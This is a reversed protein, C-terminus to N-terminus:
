RGYEVEITSDNYAVRGGGLRMAAGIDMRAEYMVLGQAYEGPQLVCTPLFRPHDYTTITTSGNGYHITFNQPYVRVPLSGTNAVTIEAAYIDDGTALAALGLLVKQEDSLGAVFSQLEDTADRGSVRLRAVPAVNASEVDFSHPATAEGQGDGTAAVVVLVVLGGVCLAAIAAMGVLVWAAIAPSERSQPLATVPMIGIPSVIPPPGFTLWTLQSAPLWAGADGERVFDLPSLRRQRAFATLQEATYPGYEHGAIRCHWHTTM